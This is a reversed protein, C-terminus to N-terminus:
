RMGGGAGSGDDGAKLDSNNIGKKSQKNSFNLKGFMWNFSLRGGFAYFKNVSSYTFGNSTIDTKLKQYPTFPNDVGISLTAKKKLLDRKVGIGYFYFSTSKGQATFTPGRFGAYGQVGWVDYLTWNLFGNLGYNIGSNNIGLTNNEVEVYSVDINGGVMFKYGKMLNGSLNIGTNTNNAQNFYTTVLTDGRQIRVAEIANNTFRRYISANISSLGFYTNFGVEINHSLEAELAPNGQTINKPDAQNSYPNLYFLSPRQLRQNYSLKLGKSGIKYSLTASPLINHYNQNLDRETKFLDGEIDTGEYRVGAKVGWKDSITWTGEAYGSMVNQNYGFQSSRANDREKLNSVLNLTDFTYVSEVQRFIIKAGVDLNFDKTFPHSYDIQATTEKNKGDNNSFEAYNLINFTNFQQIEYDTPKINNSFQGSITLEQNEKKFKHKYDLTVDVNKNDNYSEQDRSYDFLVTDLVSQVTRINNNLSMGFKRFAVGANINDKPTIDYDVGFNLRGGIGNTNNPGTQRLIDFDSFSRTADMTGKARWGFGGFGANFGVKDYKLNVNAGAFTSRTGGSLNINGSFGKVTKRKTIINIIGASGEADYKAGPSTLVEVKEIEDSPIMKMAESVSSSMVGSPKGNILVKINQSGRMSVNGDLDVSLTPVKRLVDAATGGKNSVDKTANYVLRDIKNEILSQQGVIVVEDLMKQEPSVIIKGLMREPLSDSIVINPITITTYGLYSIKLDYTGNKVEIISFMGKSDTLSGDVPSEKGKKFLAITVYELSQKSISDVVGGSIKGKGKIAGGFPMQGFVNLSFFTILTFLILRMNLLNQVM